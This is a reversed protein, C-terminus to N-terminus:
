SHVWLNVQIQPAPVQLFNHRVRIQAPIKGRTVQVQSDLDDCTLDCTITCIGLMTYPLYWHVGGLITDLM